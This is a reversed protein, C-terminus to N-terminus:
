GRWEVKERWDGRKSKFVKKTDYKGIVFAGFVRDEDELRRCKLFKLLSCAPVLCTGVGPVGEDRRQGQRAQVLHPQELVRWGGDRHRGPPHEPRGHRHRLDGGVRATAQRSCGLVIDILLLCKGITEWM